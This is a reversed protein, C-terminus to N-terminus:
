PQANEYRKKIDDLQRVFGAWPHNKMFEDLELFEEKTLKETELLDKAIEAEHYFHASIRKEFENLKKRTLNIKM